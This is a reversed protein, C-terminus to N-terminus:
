GMKYGILLDALEPNDMGLKAQQGFLAVTANM